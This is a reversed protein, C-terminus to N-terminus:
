PPIFNNDVMNYFKRPAAPIIDDTKIPIDNSKLFTKDALFDLKQLVIGKAVFSCEQIVADILIIRKYELAQKIHNYIMKQHDFPLYYRAM